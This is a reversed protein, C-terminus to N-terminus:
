PLEPAATYTSEGTLAELFAKLAAADKRSLKHAKFKPDRHPNENGGRAMLAIADELTATKGDHFYPGTLAVNRLSPTKFRGFDADAKTADKRGPDEGIGANHFDFDSFLPPPHCQACGLKTFLKEGTLAEKSLAAKDGAQARDWASNGSKLARLWAALAKPVNDATADEQFARRFLARYVPVRNLAEAVAQPDAGLQGTWAAQSVAELTPKRGDWYFSPHYGLNLV